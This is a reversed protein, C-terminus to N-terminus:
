LRSRVAETLSPAPPPQEDLPRPRLLKRQPPLPQRFLAEVAARDASSDIIPAGQAALMAAFEADAQESSLGSCGHPMEALM